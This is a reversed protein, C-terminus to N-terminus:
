DRKAESPDRTLFARRCEMVARHMRYYPVIGWVSNCFWFGFWYYTLHYISTFTNLLPVSGPLGRPDQAPIHVQGEYLEAGVFIVMGMIQLSSTILEFAFRNPSKQLIAVVTVLCLPGMVILEIMGVTWPVVHESPFRLDLVDYQHVVVPVLRLSGAAGDMTMHFLWANWWYWEVAWRDYIPMSSLKTGTNQGYLLVGCAVAFFSVVYLNGFFGGFTKVYNWGHAECHRLLMIVICLVSFMRTPDPCRNMVFSHQWPIWQCGGIADDDPSTNASKNRSMEKILIPSAKSSRPLHSTNHPRGTLDSFVINNHQERLCFTLREACQNLCIILWIKCPPFM